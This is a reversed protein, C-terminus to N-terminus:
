LNMGWTPQGSFLRELSSSIIQQADCSIRVSSFGHLKAALCSAGAMTSIGAWLRQPQKLDQINSLKFDGILFSLPLYSRVVEPIKTSLRNIDKFMMSLWDIARKVLSTPRQTKWDFSNSLQLHHQLSTIHLHFEPLKLHKERM